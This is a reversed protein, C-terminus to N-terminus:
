IVEVENWETGYEDDNPEYIIATRSLTGYTYGGDHSIIVSMDDDCMELLEKLEKVTLFDNVQDISYGTRPAEFVVAQKM